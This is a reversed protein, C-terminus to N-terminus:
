GLQKLFLGFRMAGEPWPGHGSETDLHGVDGADVLQSGWSLALEGADDLSCAPDTRSAVLLSPFALPERPYLLLTPDIEPSQALFAESPPAVLFAGAVRRAPFWRAAHVAALVGCGHAVLVVPKAAGEVAAAIRAMWAQKLPHRWDDPDVRHATRLKREWRSQWHDSAAGKHDPLILIEADFTRM